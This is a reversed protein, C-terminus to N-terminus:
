KELMMVFERFNNKDITTAEAQYHEIFSAPIKNRGGSKWKFEFASIKENADEVYDIEQKQVTRWFYRSGLQQHYTQRKIRESILFNEWLAGKNNRLEM